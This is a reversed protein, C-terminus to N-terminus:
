IESRTGGVRRNNINKVWDKDSYRRLIKELDEESYRHTEKRWNKERKEASLSILEIVGVLMIVYLFFTILTATFSKEVYYSIGTVMRSITIFLCDYYTLYGKQRHWNGPASTLTWYLISFLFFIFFIVFLNILIAYM